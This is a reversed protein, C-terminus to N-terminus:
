EALKSKIWSPDNKYRVPAEKGFKVEYEAQLSELTEDDKLEAQIASKKIGNLKEGLKQIVRYSEETRVSLFNAFKEVGIENLGLNMIWEGSDAWQIKTFTSDDEVFKAHYAAGALLKSQFDSDKLKKGIFTIGPEMNQQEGMELRKLLENKARVPSWAIATYGFVAYAMGKSDNDNASMIQSRIEDKQVQLNLERKAEEDPDYIFFKKNFHSNEQLIKNLIIDRSDAYFETYGEGQDELWINKKKFAGKKNDEVFPSTSGPYYAVYQPLEVMEGNMKTKKMMKQGAIPVQWSNPNGNKLRYTIRGQM